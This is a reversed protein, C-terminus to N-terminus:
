SGSVEIQGKMGMLSHFPKDCYFPYIGPEGLNVKAEATGKAPINVNVLIKGQPSKITLNHEMGSVNRAQITLLTGPRAKISDPEFSFSDVKLALTQEGPELVTPKQQPGACAVVWLFIILWGLVRREVRLVKRM